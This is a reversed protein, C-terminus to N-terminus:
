HPEAFAKAIITYVPHEPLFWTAAIQEVFQDPDIALNCSTLVDASKQLLRALTERHYVYIAGSHICSHDPGIAVAALGRSVADQIVSDVSLRLITIVTNIPLYGIAKIPGVLALSNFARRRDEEDIESTM